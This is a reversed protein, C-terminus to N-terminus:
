ALPQLFHHDLAPLRGELQPVQTYDGELIDRVAEHLQRYTIAGDVERIARGLAYSLAGRYDGEIYADASTQDSRCGTILTEVIEVEKVDSDVGRYAARQGRM